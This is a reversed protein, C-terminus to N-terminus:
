LNKITEANRLASEPNFFELSSDLKFLNHFANWVSNGRFGRFPFHRFLLIGNPIPYDM